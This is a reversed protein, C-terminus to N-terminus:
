GNHLDLFAKTMAQNIDLQEPTMGGIPRTLSGPGVFFTVSGTFV